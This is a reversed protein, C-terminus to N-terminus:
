SRFAVVSTGPARTGPAASVSSVVKTPLPLAALKLTASAPARNARPRRTTAGRTAPATAERPHEHTDMPSHDGLAGRSRHRARHGCRRLPREVHAHGGLPRWSRPGALGPRAPVSRRRVRPPASSKLVRRQRQDTRDHAADVCVLTDLSNLSEPTPTPNGTGRFYFLAALPPLRM